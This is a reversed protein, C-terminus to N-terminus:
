KTQKIQIDALFAHFGHCTVLSDHRTVLSDYCTFRLDNCTILHRFIRLDNFFLKLLVLHFLFSWPKVPCALTPSLTKCQIYAAM